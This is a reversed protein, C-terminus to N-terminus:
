ACNFLNGQRYKSYQTKKSFSNKKEEKRTEEKKTFNSSASNFTTKRNYNYGGNSLIKLLKEYEANLEQMIRLNGGHDPHFTMALKRYLRKLEDLSQVGSFFM